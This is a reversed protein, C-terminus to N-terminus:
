RVRIARGNRMDLVVWPKDTSHFHFVLEQVGGADARVVEATFRPMEMRAGARQAEPAAPYVDEILSHMFRGGEIGVRLTDSGDWRAWTPTTGIQDPLCEAFFKEIAGSPEVSSLPLVKPRITLIQVDLTPDQYLLPLMFEMHFAPPWLNLLYLSSGRPLSAM